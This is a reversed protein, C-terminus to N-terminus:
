SSHSSGSCKVWRPTGTTAERDPAVGTDGAADKNSDGYDTPDAM